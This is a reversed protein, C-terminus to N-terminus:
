HFATVLDKDNEFQATTADGVLLLIGNNHRRVLLELKKSM